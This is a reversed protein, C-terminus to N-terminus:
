LHNQELSRIYRLCLSDYITTYFKLLPLTKYGDWGGLRSLHRFRLCGLLHAIQDPTAHSWIHHTSLMWAHHAEDDDRSLVM